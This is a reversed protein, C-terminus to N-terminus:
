SIAVGTSVTIGGSPLVVLAPKKPQDHGGGLEGPIVQGASARIRIHSTTADAVDVSDATMRRLYVDFATNVVGSAPLYGQVTEEDLTAISFRPDRRQVALHSPWLLAASQLEAVVLGIGFDIQASDYEIETGNHKIPGARFMEATTAEAGSSVSTAYALPSTGAAGKGCVMYRISLAGRRPIALGTPMWFSDAPFTLSIGGSTAPLGSSYPMLVAAFGGSGVAAGSFASLALTTAIAKTSLELTPAFHVVCTDKAYLIPAPANRGFDLGFDLSWEEVGPVRNGTSYLLESLRWISTAAFVGPSVSGAAILPVNTGDYEPLVGVTLVARGGAGRLSIPYLVGKNITIKRGTGAGGRTGNEAYRQAFLVVPAASTIPLVFSTLLDLVVKVDLTDFTVAPMVNSVVIQSPDVASSGSDLAAAIGPDVRSAIIGGISTPGAGQQVGSITYLNPM